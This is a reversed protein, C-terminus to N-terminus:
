IIRPRYGGVVLGRIEIRSINDGPNEVNVPAQHAPDSSRPWLWRKGDAVRLEKVTAEVKDDHSYAYVIVHDEHIPPRSDLVDVWVVISGDPYDLNMSPGRVELAKAIKRFRDPVPVDVAYWLSQDWEIAERFSGAEIHGAVWTSTPSPPEPKDGSLRWVPVQEVRALKAYTIHELSDSHSNLFNYVSNEKVGARKAWSAVKLGREKMFKRLVERRADPTKAMPRAIAGLKGMRIHFPAQLGCGFTTKHAAHDILSNLPDAVREGLGADCRRSQSPLSTQM